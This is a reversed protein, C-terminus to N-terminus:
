KAQLALAIIGSTFAAAASTQSFDYDCATDSCNSTTVQFVSFSFSPLYNWRMKYVTIEVDRYSSINLYFYVCVYM